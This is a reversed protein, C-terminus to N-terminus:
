AAKRRRAVVGLLGLGALLMAYSSPEPVASVSFATIRQDAKAGGTGGTFGVYMTSGFKASLDVSASDSVTHTAGAGSADFFSGSMTLVHTAANYSVTETGTVSSARGVDWGAAKVSQVEGNVSLGITNNSWSQIISGVSGSHSGNINWYGVDQGGNGVINSGSGQNQFVLGIGDAMTGSSSTNNLLFSFTTTFSSSTSIAQNLWGAGAESTTSTLQLENGMMKASGALNLTSLDISAASAPAALVLASAALATLTFLTRM